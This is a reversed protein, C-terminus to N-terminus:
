SDYRSICISKIIVDKNCEKDNFIYTYAISDPTQSGAQIGCILLMNVNPINQTVRYYQVNDVYWILESPTWKLSYTHFDKDLNVNFTHESGGSGSPYHFSFKMFNTPGGLMYTDQNNPGAKGFIEFDIEPKQDGVEANYLWFSPFYTYGSPPLKAVIDLKGYKFSFGKNINTNYSCIEGCFDHKIGEQWWNLNYYPTEEWDSGRTDGTSAILHLGDVGPKVMEKVWVVRHGNTTTYPQYDPYVGRNGKGALPYWDNWSFNFNEFNYYFISTTFKIQEGYYLKNGDSFYSKFYYTTGSKLNNIITYFSGFGSGDYSHENSFTPNGTNNWCVGRLNVKQGYVINCNVKVTNINKYQLVSITQIPPPKCCFIKKLLDSIYGM